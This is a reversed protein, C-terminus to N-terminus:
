RVREQKLEDRIKILEPLYLKDKTIDEITGVAGVNNPLPKSSIEIWKRIGDDLLVECQFKIPQKSALNCKEKIEKLDGYFYNYFEQGLLRKMPQEFIACFYSNAYVLGGLQDLQWLGVNVNDALLSILKYNELALSNTIDVALIKIAEQGNWEVVDTYFKYHLRVGDIEIDSDCIHESLIKELAKEIEINENEIFSLKFKDNAYVIDSGIIIALANVSEKLLKEFQNM